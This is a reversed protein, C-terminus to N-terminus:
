GPYGTAAHLTQLVKEALLLGKQHRIFLAAAIFANSLLM